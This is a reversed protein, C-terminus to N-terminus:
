RKLEVVVGKFHTKGVNVPEHPDTNTQYRADGPKYTTRDVSGDQRKVEITAGEICVLVRPYRHVHLGESQGAELTVRGVRVTENEVILEYNKLRTTPKQPFGECQSLAAWALAVLATLVTLSIKTKM